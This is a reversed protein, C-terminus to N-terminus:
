PRLGITELSRSVLQAIARYGADGPHLHDGSDFVAALREADAPDRLAADADAVADFEGSTRIWDNVAKRIREKAESFHGELPTGELAHKFPPLTVAVIRIDHLRAKAILQRYGVILEDPTVPVDNPAFPGRPWGIDNTGLLVVVANLGPQQFVDHELRELASVGMGDRLLRGGAIGANLVGTGQGAMEAALADPWRRDADPTSGAGDTISDGLAVLTRPSHQALVSIAGLFSRASLETADAPLAKALTRNGNAIHVTGQADWHFGAPMSPGLVFVSVAVKSLPAVKMDVPDSTATAGAPIVIDARGGFTLPKPNAVLAATADTTSGVSASGVHLASSAYENSLTVRLASGGISLRASQRVTQHDFTQPIGTPLVFDKGWLPEASAMWSPSWAPQAVPGSAPSAKDTWATIAISFLLAALRPKSPM